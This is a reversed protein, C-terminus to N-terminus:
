KASQFMFTLHNIMWSNTNMSRLHWLKLDVVEYVMFVHHCIVMSMSFLNMKLIATDVIETFCGGGGAVGRFFFFFIM